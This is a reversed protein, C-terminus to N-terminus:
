HRDRFRLSRLERVAPSCLRRFRLTNDSEFLGPAPVNVSGAIRGPRAYARSDGRHTAETLANILLTSDDGLAEEVDPVNVFINRRSGIPFQAAPYREEGSAVPRGEAQWKDWGGDLVAARDFGFDRLMWWLRMAWWGPGRNYAVVFDDGGVGYESMAAAFQTEDPMQFPVAQATDSLTTMLDIFGAGSIHEELWSDRGSQSYYGGGDKTKLIVSCDFLRLRPNDLISELEETSILPSETM